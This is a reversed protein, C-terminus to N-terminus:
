AAPPGAVVFTFAADIGQRTASSIAYRSIYVAWEDQACSYTGGDGAGISTEISTVADGAGFNYRNNLTAVLASYNPSVGPITLCWVGDSPSRSTIGGSQSFVDSSGSMHLGFARAVGGSPGAPGQPGAPGAPGAPGQSGDAGDVGDAGDAGAPGTLKSKTKASLDRVGLSHDKVDVGTLSGDKIQKGTILSGAAAGGGAALLVALVLIPLSALTPRILSRPRM